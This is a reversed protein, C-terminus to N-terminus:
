RYVYARVWWVYMGHHTLAVKSCGVGCPMYPLQHIYPAACARTRICVCWPSMYPILATPITAVCVGEGERIPIHHLLLLLLVPPLSHYMPEHAGPATDRWICVSAWMAYVMTSLSQSWVYEEYQYYHPYGQRPPIYMSLAPSCMSCSISGTAWYDMYWIGHYQHEYGQM